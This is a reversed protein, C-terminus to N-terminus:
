WYASMEIDPFVVRSSALKTPSPILFLLLLLSPLLVSILLVRPANYFLSYFIFCIGKFVELHTGGCILVWSNQIESSLATYVHSLYQRVTLVRLHEPSPGLLMQGVVDKTHGDFCVLRLKALVVILEFRCHSLFCQISVVSCQVSFCWIKTIGLVQFPGLDRSM